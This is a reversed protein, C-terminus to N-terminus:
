DSITNLFTIEAAGFQMTALLQPDAPPYTRWALTWAEPVAWLDGTLREAADVDDFPVIARIAQEWGTHDLVIGQNTSGQAVRRDREECARQYAVAQVGSVVVERQITTLDPAQGAAQYRVLLAYVPHIPGRNEEAPWPKWVGPVPPAVAYSSLYALVADPLPPQEPAATPAAAAELAAIRRL